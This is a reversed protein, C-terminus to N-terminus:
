VPTFRRAPRDTRRLAPYLVQIMFLQFRPKGWEYGMRLQQAQAALKDMAAYSAQDRQKKCTMVDAFKIRHHRGIKTLPLAGEDLLKALHAPFLNPM